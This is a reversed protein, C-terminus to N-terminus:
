SRADSVARGGLLRSCCVGRPVSEGVRHGAWLPARSTSARRAGVPAYVNLSLDTYAPQCLSPRRCLCVAACAAVCVPGADCSTRTAVICWLADLVAVAWGTLCCLSVPVSTLSNVPSMVVYCVSSALVAVSM